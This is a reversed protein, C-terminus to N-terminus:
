YQGDTTVLSLSVGLGAGIIAVRPTTEAMSHSLKHLTYRTYNVHPVLIQISLARISQM